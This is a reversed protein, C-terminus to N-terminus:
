GNTPPGPSSSDGAAVRLEMASVERRWVIVRKDPANHRLVLASSLGTIGAGVVVVDPDLDRTLRPGPRLARRAWYATNPGVLHARAVLSASLTRPWARGRDPRWKRHAGEQHLRTPERDGGLARRPVSRADLTGGPQEALRGSAASLSSVVARVADRPVFIQDGICEWAAYVLAFFVRLQWEIPPTASLLKRARARELVSTLAGELTNLHSAVAADKELWDQSALFRFKAGLPVLVEAVRELTELPAGRQLPLGKLGTEVSTLADLAAARLLAERSSFSRYLTARSLGAARAVEDLTAGPNSSLVAAAAALIERRSVNM